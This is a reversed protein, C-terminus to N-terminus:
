LWRDELSEGVIGELRRVDDAYYERLRERTAPKMEPYEEESFPRYLVRNTWPHRKIRTLLAPFGFNRVAVAIKKAALALWRSRPKSAGLSKEEAADPFFDCDVGLFDFMRRAFMENDEKLDDFLLLLLQDRDFRELYPALHRAYLGREVLDSRIEIAEDFSATLIGNRVLFLYHSFARDIPNRLCSILRMDPNFQHIRMAAKASFIYTNSIEGIAEHGASGNFFDLYWEDGREYYRDFYVTEKTAPVYVEPHADFLDYMWTTGSKGPGIVIFNPGPRTLWDDRDVSNVRM